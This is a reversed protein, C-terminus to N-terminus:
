YQVFEVRVGPAHKVSSWDVVAGLRRAGAAIALDPLLGRKTDLHKGRGRPRNQPPNIFVVADSPGLGIPKIALFGARGTLASKVAPESFQSEKLPTPLCTMAM